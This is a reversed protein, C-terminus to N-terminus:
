KMTRDLLGNLFAMTRKQARVTGMLTKRHADLLLLASRLKAVPVASGERVMRVVKNAEAISSVSRRAM